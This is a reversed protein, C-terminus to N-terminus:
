AGESWERTLFLWFALGAYTGFRRFARIITSDAARKKKTLALYKPRTWSDLVLRHHYGLLQMVHAAAYPGIGPLALLASEVSEATAGSSPLLVELDLSGAAVDRAISRVYPGRYGMKAVDAFWREPTSAIRAPDPFAGEGLEVLAGVMRTTASWACNTTCITKIVDEFVTPSAPLRGAGLAWSMEEDKATLAYFPSLDDDLRFVRRTIREAEAHERQSLAGDVEVRLSAGTANFRLRRVRKGIRVRLAYSPISEDIEGPPLYL